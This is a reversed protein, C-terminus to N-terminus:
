NKVYKDIAILLNNQKGIERTLDQAVDIEMNSMKGALNSRNVTARNNKSPDNSASQNYLSFAVVRVQPVGLGHEYMWGLNSQAFSFGQYAALRFLKVAEKYDQPVGQGNFYMLGLNSQANDHGQDAALRYWKVAEKYDQPVGQGNFYMLGLHISCRCQGATCFAEM